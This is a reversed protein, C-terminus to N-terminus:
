VNVTNSSVAEVLIVIIIQLVSYLPCYNTKRPLKTPFSFIAGVKQILCALHPHTKANQTSRRAVRPWQQYPM